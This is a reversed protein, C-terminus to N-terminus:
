KVKKKRIVSYQPANAHGSNCHFSLLANQAKWMIEYITRNESFLKNLM